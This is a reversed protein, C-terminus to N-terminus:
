PSIKTLSLIVLVNHPCLIDMHQTGPVVRLGGNHEDVADLAIWAAVCTGPKIRSYFNDQHLAQGTAGPPKYFMMTQCGIPEDGLIDCLIDLSRPHMFLDYSQKDYEHPNMLRPYVKEQDEDVHKDFGAIPPRDSITM